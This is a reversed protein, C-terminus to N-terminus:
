DAGVARRYIDIIESMDAPVYGTEDCIKAFNQAVKEV